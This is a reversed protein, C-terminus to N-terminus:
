LFGRTESYVLKNMTADEPTTAELDVVKPCNLPCFSKKYTLTCLCRASKNCTTMDEKAATQLRPGTFRMWKRAHKQVRKENPTKSTVHMEEKKWRSLDPGCHCSNSFQASSAPRKHMFANFNILDKRWKTVNRKQRAFHGPGSQQDHRHRFRSAPLCM